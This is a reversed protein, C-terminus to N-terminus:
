AGPKFIADVRFNSLAAPQERVEVALSVNRGISELEERRWWRGIGDNTNDPRLQNEQYRQVRQPTDYFNWKLEDCPIGSAMFVLDDSTLRRATQLMASLQTPEFYCLADGLLIKTPVFERTRALENLYVVTDACVYTVNGLAAFKRAHAVLHEAFDVAHIEHVRPALRRTMLGNGCCLELLRDSATLELGRAILDISLAFAEESIPRQNVTKGVEFFLDEESAIEKQRYSQWFSKWNVGAM